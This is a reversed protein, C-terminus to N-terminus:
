LTIPLTATGMNFAQTEYNYDTMLWDTLQIAPAYGWKWAALSADVIQPANLDRKYFMLERITKGSQLDLEGDVYCITQPRGMATCLYNFATLNQDFIYRRLAFFYECLPRNALPDWAYRTVTKPYDVSRLYHTAYRDVYLQADRKQGNVLVIGRHALTYCCFQWTAYDPISFKVNPHNRAHLEFLRFHPRLSKATSHLAILSDMSMTVQRFVIELVDALAVRPTPRRPSRDRSPKCLRLLDKCRDVFHETGFLGHDDLKYEHTNKLYSEFMVWANLEQFIALAEESRLRRVQTQTAVKALRKDSFWRSAKKKFVAPVIFAYYEVCSKGCSEFDNWLHLVEMDSLSM